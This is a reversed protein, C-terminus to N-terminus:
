GAVYHARLRQLTRTLRNRVTRDSVHLHEAIEQQTLDRYFADYILLRDDADLTSLLASMDSTRDVDEFATDARPDQIDTVAPTQGDDTGAGAGVAAGLELRQLEGSPVRTPTTVGDRKWEGVRGMEIPAVHQQIRHLTHMFAEVLFTQEDQVLEEWVAIYCRQELDEALAHHDQLRAM